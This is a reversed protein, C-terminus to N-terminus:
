VGKTTSYSGFRLAVNELSAKSGVVTISDGMRLRTYGHSILQHGGRSISLIIIDSPLRLDRLPLGRMDPNKIEIDM